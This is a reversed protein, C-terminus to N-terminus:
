VHARGIKFPLYAQDPESDMVPHFAKFYQTYYQTTTTDFFLHERFVILGVEADPQKAMITDLLDRVVTFRAGTPDNGNNGRMSGTNDIVFLISSTGGTGPIHLTQSAKCAHVLSSIKVVNDPVTITQGNFNEPCGSFTLECIDAAFLAGSMALAWLMFYCVSKEAIRWVM